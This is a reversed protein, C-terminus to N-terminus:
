QANLRVRVATFRMNSARPVLHLLTSYLLLIASLGRLRSILENTFLCSHFPLMFIQGDVLHSVISLSMLNYRKVMKVQARVQQRMM